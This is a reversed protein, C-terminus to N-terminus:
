DAEPRAKPRRASEEAASPQEPQAAEIEIGPQEQAVEAELTIAPLILAYTTTFVVISIFVSLIRRYTRMRGHESLFLKILELLREM